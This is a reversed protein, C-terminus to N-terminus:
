APLSHLSKLMGKAKLLCEEYEKEANAYVTIGSGTAFSLLSSYTDYVISRIVVNFDFDGEPTIYGVAGSYWERSFNEYLDIWEMAKIKPAGTMSGMPFTNTFIESLTTNPNTEATITSIMQYIHPLAYVGFLEEVKVTGPLAIRSLDNRVLDVIMVNESQEKLDTKFRQKIQQDEAETTGRPASGKIPQSILQTGTKKLYREPSACLLHLDLDKYWVSFPMPSFQTLHEFVEQVPMEPWSSLFEMCYNVEYVNGLRLQEQLQTVALIYEARSTQQRPPLPSTQTVKQSLKHDRIDKIVQDPDEVTSLIFHNEHLHLIHRPIFFSFHPLTFRSPNKSQLTELDNKLDYSLYGIIWDRNQHHFEDLAKIPKGQTHVCDQFTGVALMQPFSGYLSDGQQGKFYVCRDFSGAWSLLHPLSIQTFSFQIQQRM